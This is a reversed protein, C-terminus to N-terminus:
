LYVLVSPSVIRNVPIYGKDKQLRAVEYMPFRFVPIDRLAMGNIRVRQSVAKIAATRRSVISRLSMISAMRRALMLCIRM